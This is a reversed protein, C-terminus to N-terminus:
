ETTISGMLVVEFDRGRVQRLRRLEDNMGARMLRAGFHVLELRQGGREYWVDKAGAARRPGALPYSAIDM